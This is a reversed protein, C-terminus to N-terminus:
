ISAAWQSRMQENDARGALWTAYAPLDFQVAFCNASAILESVVAQQPRWMIPERDPLSCWDDMSAYWVLAVPTDRAEPPVLSRMHDIAQHSEYIAKARWALLSQMTRIVDQPITREGTEWYSWSRTSVGGIL